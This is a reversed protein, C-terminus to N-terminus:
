LTSPVAITLGAVVLALPAQLVRRALLYAPIAALSVLVSNITKAAAYADPVSEFLLYAPSILIPYVVGYAGGAADERLLFEGTSAFSKALESYILEDVMIWPAPMRRAFAYRVIASALVIGGLWVWAPVARVAAIPAPRLRTATVSTM